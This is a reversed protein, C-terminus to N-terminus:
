IFFVVYFAELQPASSVQSFYHVRVASFNLIKFNICNFSIEPTFILHYQFVIECAFSSDEVARDVSSKSEPIGKGGVQM